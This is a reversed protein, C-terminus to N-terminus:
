TNKRLPQLHPLMGQPLFRRMDWTKQRLHSTTPRRCTIKPLHISDSTILHTLSQRYTIKPPPCYIIRSLMALYCPLLKTAQGSSEKTVLTRALEQHPCITVPSCNLLLFTTKPPLCSILDKVTSQCRKTPHCSPKRPLCTTKQPHNFAQYQRLLSTTTSLHSTVKSM